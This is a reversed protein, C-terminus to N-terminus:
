RKYTFIDKHLCVQTEQKKSQIKIEVVVDFISFPSLGVFCIADLLEDTVDTIINPSEVTSGPFLSKMLVIKLLLKGGYPTSKGFWDGVPLNM